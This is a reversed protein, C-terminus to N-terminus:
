KSSKNVVTYFLIYLGYLSFISYATFSRIYDKTHVYRSLTCIGARRWGYQEELIQAKYNAANGIYCAGAWGM